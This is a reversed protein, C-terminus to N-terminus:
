NQILKFIEVLKIKDIQDLADLQFLKRQKNAFRYLGKENPYRYLPMRKKTSIFEYLNELTYSSNRRPNKENKKIVENILDSRHDEIEDNITKRTQNKYWRYLSIEVKSCGSSFPLRNHLKTFELLDNYNEEWTAVSIVKKNIKLYTENYIKNSLGIKSNKFFVFTKSKDLQLNSVISTENSNPRFKLVYNTIESYNMPTSNKDLFESVIERITGGKFNILENEWEKLGFVSSRGVPVFNDNRIMSSRVQSDNIDYHPHIEKVQMTIHNIKSPKGLLKLAEYVYEYVQKLTNRKFEINENIDLFIGFEINLIKEAVESITNLKEINNSTLFGLLYSKFNFLYGEQLRENTRINLDNVFNDFHFLSNIKKSVLHFNTWNHRERSNFYKYPFVDDIQGVLDFKDSFNIYILIANFETSFNTENTKNILNNLDEELLIIDLNQDINYKQYLDDELIKIFQLSEFLKKLINKRIQRVRERSINLKEVIEDSTLGPKKDYIKFTNRFIFNENKKFIVDKDLLFDVLKFISQSELIEIPISSISFIKEIFFRNRLTILDKETEIKAVREIFDKLSSIFTKLEALSKEGINKISELNFTDNNLIKECVNQIKLNGNLFNSIANFSRISLNKSYIEIYSNVIERQMKTFHSIISLIQKESKSNEDINKTLNEIKNEISDKKNSLYTEIFNEIENNTKSGCNRVSKFNKNEFYYNLVNSFNDFTNLTNLARESLTSLDINRFDITENFIEDIPNEIPSTNESTILSNNPNIGYDNKFYSILIDNTMKGCNKVRYFNNYKVFHNYADKLSGISTIVNKCREPILLGEVEKRNERIYNYTETREKVFYKKNLSYKQSNM